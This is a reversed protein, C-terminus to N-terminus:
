IIEEGTTTVITAIKKCKGFFIKFFKFVFIM